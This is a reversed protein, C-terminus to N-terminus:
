RMRLTLEVNATKGVEVTVSEHNVLPPGFRVQQIRMSDPNRETEQVNWNPHWAVIEYQGAPVRPLTFRGKADTRALYPHLSVFLYARMWFYGSGSALEVVEPGALRRSVIKGADPLMCTFFASKGSKGDFGRAQVSQFMEDRSVLEISARVPVFGIRSDASGQLIHFQQGRTEVRVPPLDWPRSKDPDIQKLYVVAGALGSSKEDIAPVNPNPWDQASPPSPQDALPQPISRFPPVVVRPGKWSVRGRIEGVRSPDFLRGLVPSPETVPEPTPSDDCGIMWPVSLVVVIWWSPRHM